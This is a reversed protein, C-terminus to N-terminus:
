QRAAKKFKAYAGGVLREVDSADLLNGMGIPELDFWLTDGKRADVLCLTIAPAGLPSALNGGNSLIVALTIPAIVVLGTLVVSLKDPTMINDEAYVLLLTDTGAADALARVPGPLCARGKEMSLPWMREIAVLVQKLEPQAAEAAKPDFEKVAFRPDSGFHKALANRLNTRATESGDRLIQRSGFADRFVRVDVPVVAISAIQNARDRLDPVAYYHGSACGTLTMSIIVGLAVLRRFGARVIRIYHRYAKGKPQQARAVFSALVFSVALGILRM